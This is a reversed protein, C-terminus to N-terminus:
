WDKIFTYLWQQGKRYLVSDIRQHMQQIDKKKKEIIREFLKM